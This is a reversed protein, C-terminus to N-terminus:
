VRGARWIRRQMPVNEANGLASYAPRRRPFTGCTRGRGRDFGASGAALSQREAQRRRDDAGSLFRARRGATQGPQPRGALALRCARGTGRSKGHFLRAARGQQLGSGHRGPVRAPAYVIREPMGPPRKKQEGRPCCLPGHPRPRGASRGRRGACAAAGAGPAQSGPRGPQSGM